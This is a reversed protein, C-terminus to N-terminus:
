REETKGKGRGRECKGMKKMKLQEEQECVKPITQIFNFFQIKDFFLYSICAILPKMRIKLFISKACMVIQSYIHAVLIPDRRSLFYRGKSHNEM